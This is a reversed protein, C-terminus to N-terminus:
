PAPSRGRAGDACCESITDHSLREVAPGPYVERDPSSVSGLGDASSRSPDSVPRATAASRPETSGQRLTTPGPSPNAVEAQAQPNRALYEDVQRREDDDVADLAYAGLSEVIPDIPEVPDVM